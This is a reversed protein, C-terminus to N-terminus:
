SRKGAIRRVAQQFGRQYLLGREVGKIIVPMAKAIQREFDRDSNNGGGNVNITIGGGGGGGGEGGMLKVPVHRNDPMPIVAETNRGEGIMALQPQSAIGGGAYGPFNLGGSIVGGNAYLSLGGPFVGGKAAPFISPFAQKLGAMISAQVIMSAIDVVVNKAFDGFAESAGASGSIVSKLAGGLQSEIISGASVAAEQFKTKEKSAEATATREERIREILAGLKQTQDDTLRGDERLLELREREKEAWSDIEVKQEEFTKVVEAMLAKQEVAFNKAKDIAAKLPDDSPSTGTVPNKPASAPPLAEGGSGTPGPSGGNMSAILGAMEEKAARLRETAEPSISGSRGALANIKETVESLPAPLKSMDRGLATMEARFMAINLNMQRTITDAANEDTAFLEADTVTRAGQSMFAGRQRLAAQEKAILGELEVIRAAADENTKGFFGPIEALASRFATPILIVADLLIEAQNRVEEVFIGMSAAILNFAGDILKSVGEVGGAEEIFEKMAKVLGIFGETLVKVVGRLAAAVVRAEELVVELGGVRDIAENLTEIIAQGAGEVFEIRIANWAAAVRFAPDAMQKDFAKGTAGTRDEMARLIENFGEAKEGTLNLIASAGEVRGLFEVLGDENGKFARRLDALVPVLGEAKITALSFSTGFEKSFLANIEKSSKLLSVIAARVQTVAEATPTGSKTIAAVSALLEDFEVGLQAAFPTVQSLSGGLEPITTIGKRVATFLTDSFDAADSVDANYANLSSSLLRVSDDVEAIGATALRNADNLLILADRANGSGASIAQYLGAALKTENGGQAQALKVVEGRLTKIQGVSLEVITSVESMAGSFESAEKTINIAFALSGFVAILPLLASSLTSKIARGAAKAAVLISAFAKKGLLGIRRLLNGTERFAKSALKAAKVGVPGIAKIIRLAEDKARLVLTYEETVNAM